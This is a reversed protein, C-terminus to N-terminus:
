ETRAESLSQKFFSVNQQIRENEPAYTLAQEAAEMANDLANGLLACLDPGGIPLHAPLAAAFDGRVGIQEM